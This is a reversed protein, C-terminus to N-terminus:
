LPWATSLSQRGKDEEGTCADNGRRSWKCKWKIEKKREWGGELKKRGIRRTGRTGKERM